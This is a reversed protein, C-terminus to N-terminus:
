SQYKILFIAILSGILTNIFNVVENTLWKIEKTQYSAGIYSEITTAFLASIMCIYVENFSGLFGVLYAILSLIMSGFIGAIYGELSVAGETGRPVRELTTILYTTKGFAKGIESQFTDSLKTVLSAVYGLKLINYLYNNDKVFLTLIACLLAIGAAGYINEPGRKGQRKEAIGEKEKQDIKIKTVINGLIFYSICILYGELGLFTYLSVGLFTAHILGEDTLSKKLKDNFLYCSLGNIVIGTQLNDIYSIDTFENLNLKNFNKKILNTKIKCFGYTQIAFILSFLFLLKM